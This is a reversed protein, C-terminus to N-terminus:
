TLEGPDHSYNLRPLSICLQHRQVLQVWNTHKLLEFENIYTDICKTWDHMSMEVDTFIAAKKVSRNTKPEIGTEQEIGTVTPDMNMIYHVQGSSRHIRKFYM